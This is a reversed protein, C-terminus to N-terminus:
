DDRANREGYDHFIGNQQLRNIEILHSIKQDIEKLFDRMEKLTRKCEQDFCNNM